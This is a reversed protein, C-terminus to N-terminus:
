ESAPKINVIISRINVIHWEIKEEEGKRVEGSGGLSYKRSKSALLKVLSLPHYLFWINM